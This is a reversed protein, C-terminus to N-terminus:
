HPNPSYFTKTDRENADMIEQYKDQNDAYVQQRITKRMLRRADKEIKLWHTIQVLRPVQQKGNRIHKNVERSWWPFIGM